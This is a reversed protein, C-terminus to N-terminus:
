IKKKLKENKKLNKKKFQLKWQPDILPNPRYIADPNISFNHQSARLHGNSTVRSAYLVCLGGPLNFHESQLVATSLALHRSSKKLFLSDFWSAILTSSVLCWWLPAVTQNCVPRGCSSSAGTGRRQEGESRMMEAPLPRVVFFFFINKPRWKGDNWIVIMLNSNFNENRTVGGLGSGAAKM